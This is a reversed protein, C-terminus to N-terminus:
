DTRAPDMELVSKRIKELLFFISELGQKLTLLEATVPAYVKNISGLIPKEQYQKAPNFRTENDDRLAQMFDKLAGQTNKVADQLEDRLQIVGPTIENIQQLINNWRM